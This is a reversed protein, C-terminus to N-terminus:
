QQWKLFLGKLGFDPDFQELLSLQNALVQHLWIYVSMTFDAAM